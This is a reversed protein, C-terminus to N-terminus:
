VLAQGDHGRREGIGAENRDPGVLEGLAIRKQYHFSSRSSAHPLVIVSTLLGGANGRIGKCCSCGRHGMPPQPETGDRTPAIRQRAHPASIRRICTTGSSVM